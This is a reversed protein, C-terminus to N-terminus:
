ARNWLLRDQCHGSNLAKSKGFGRWVRSVGVTLDGTAHFPPPHLSTGASTPEPQERSHGAATADGWPGLGGEGAMAGPM